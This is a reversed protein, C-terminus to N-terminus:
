NKVIVKESKVTNTNSTVNVIYVGDSLDVTSLEYRNSVADYQGNIMRKGAVDFVEISKIDLGNPNLVALQHIDNHQRITLKNVEFDDIDM